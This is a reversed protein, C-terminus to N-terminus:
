NVIFGFYGASPSPNSGEVLIKTSIVQCSNNGRLINFLKLIQKIICIYLLKKM